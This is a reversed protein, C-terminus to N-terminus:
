QATLVCIDQESSQDWMSTRRGGAVGGNEPFDRQREDQQSIIQEL